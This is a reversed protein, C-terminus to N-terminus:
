EQELECFGYNDGKYTVCQNTSVVWVFFILFALVPIMGIWFEGTKYFRRPKFSDLKTNINALDTAYKETYQNLTQGLDKWDQKIENLFKQQDDDM